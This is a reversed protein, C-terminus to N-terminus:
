ADHPKRDQQQVLRQALKFQDDEVIDGAQRRLRHLVQIRKHALAARQQDDAGTADVRKLEVAKEEACVRRLYSLDHLTVPQISALNM